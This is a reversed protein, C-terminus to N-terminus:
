QNTIIKEIEDVYKNLKDAIEKSLEPKHDHIRLQILVDTKEVRHELMTTMKSM